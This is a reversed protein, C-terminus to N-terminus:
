WSGPDQVAIATRLAAHGNCTPIAAKVSVDPKRQDWVQSRGAGGLGATEEAILRREDASRQGGRGFEEVSVKMRAEMRAVDDHGDAFSYM